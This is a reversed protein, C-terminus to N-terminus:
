VLHPFAYSVLSVFELLDFVFPFSVSELLGYSITHSKELYECVVLDLLLYMRRATLQTVM